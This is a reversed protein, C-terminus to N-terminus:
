RVRGPPLIRDMFQKFKGEDGFFFAGVIFGVLTFITIFITKWLGFICILVAVVFFVFAFMYGAKTNQLKEILKSLLREIM